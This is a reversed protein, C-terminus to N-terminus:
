EFNTMEGLTVLDRTPDCIGDPYDRPLKLEGQGDTTPICGVRLTPSTCGSPRPSYFSGRIDRETNRIIIRWVNMPGM